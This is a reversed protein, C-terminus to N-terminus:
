AKASGKKRKFPASKNEPASRIAKTEVLEVAGISILSNLLDDKVTHVSGSQWNEVSIGDVSVSMTRLMKIETM